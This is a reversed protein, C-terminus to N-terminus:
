LNEFQNTMGCNTCTNSWMDSVNDYVENESFENSCSVTKDKEWSKKRRCLVVMKAKERERGVAM